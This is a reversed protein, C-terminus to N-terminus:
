QTASGTEGNLLREARRDPHYYAIYDKIKNLPVTYPVTILYVGNQDCIDLKVRDRERQSDFEEKTVHLNNPYVYHQKGNYEIGIKLSENYLDIEMRKGTKPNLLWKPRVKTFPVGFVEKAARGCEEEGKSLFNTRHLPPNSTAVPIPIEDDEFEDEKEIKKHIASSLQDLLPSLGVFQSSVPNRFLYWGILVGLFLTLALYKWGPIELEM